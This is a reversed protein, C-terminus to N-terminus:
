STYQKPALKSHSDLKYQFVNTIWKPDFYPLTVQVDMSGHPKYIDESMEMTPPEDKRYALIMRTFNEYSSELWCCDVPVFQVVLIEIEGNQEERTLLSHHQDPSCDEKWSWFPYSDWLIIGARRMENRM